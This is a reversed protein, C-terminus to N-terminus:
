PGVEAPEDRQRLEEDIVAIMDRAEDETLGFANGSSESVHETRSTAMGTLLLAKDAMIGLALAKDRLPAKPDNLGEVTAALAVVVGQWMSRALQDQAVERLDAFRPDKRWAAITRRPIKLLEAAREDGVILATGVAKARDAPSYSRTATEARSM